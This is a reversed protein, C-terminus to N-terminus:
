IISLYFKDNNKIFNVYFYKIKQHNVNKEKFKTLEDILGIECYKLLDIIVELM